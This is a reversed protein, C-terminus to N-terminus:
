YGNPNGPLIIGTGEDGGSGVWVLDRGNLRVAWCSAPNGDYAFCMRDGKLSWEGAYDAGHIKGDPAYFEEFAGSAQMSGRVTNGAIAGKIADATALQQAQAPLGQALAFCISICLASRTIM